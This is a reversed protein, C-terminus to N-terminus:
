GLLRPSVGVVVLASLTAVLGAPMFKGSKFARMGMIVALTGSSALLLYCNHPEQAMQFTGAASLGGFLIGAALSIASGKRMYGMIGGAAVALAYLYGAKEMKTIDVGEL